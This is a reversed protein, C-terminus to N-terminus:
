LAAAQRKQPEEHRRWIWLPLIVSSHEGCPLHSSQPHTGARPRRSWHASPRGEWYRPALVRTVLPGPTPASDCILNRLHRHPLHLSTARRSLWRHLRLLKRHVCYGFPGRTPDPIVAPFPPLPPTLTAAHIPPFLAPPPTTHHAHPLTYSIHANTPASVTPQQTTSASPPLRRGVRIDNNCM